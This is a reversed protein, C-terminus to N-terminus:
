PTSASPTLAPLDAPPRAALAVLGGLAFLAAFVAFAAGYGGTADFLIGGVVPGAASAVFRLPGVLPAVGASVLRTVVGASALLGYYLKGMSKAVM